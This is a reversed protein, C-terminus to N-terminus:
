FYNEKYYECLEKYIANGEKSFSEAMKIKGFYKEPLKCYLLFTRYLGRYEESSIYPNKIVPKDLQWYAYGMKEEVAPDFQGLDIATQRLPTGKFPYVFGINPSNVNAVRMLQITEFIMERTENPFGMLLFAVSRIGYQHVRRFAEVITKNKVKRFLYKKRFEENGTEVGISVSACNMNKLYLSREETISQPSAEVLFPLGVEKAYLDSLLRFEKLPWSLFTEDYFRYLSLNWKKKLEVLERVIREPSYRRLSKDNYMNHITSQLCYSCSEYCGRMIMHDGAKYAKGLFPKIFQRPDYFDWNFYPLDNMKNFYPTLPNKKVSGDEMRFWFNKINSYDKKHELLELLNIFTEEAEGICIADVKWKIVEEKDVICHKGGIAIFCSPLYSKCIAALKKAIKAESSLVTVALCDPQFGDLVSKFEMEINVKKKDLNYSSLDVPMFILASEGVEDKMKHPIEAGEFDTTDYFTTDFLMVDHGAQFTLSMLITLGVPKCGSSDKNPYVFLIKM